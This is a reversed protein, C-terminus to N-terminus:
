VVIAAKQTWSWQWVAAVATLLTGSLAVVDSQSLQYVVKDAARVPVTSNAPLVGANFAVVYSTLQQQFIQDSYWTRGSWEVGADLKQDRQREIDAAQEEYTKYSQWSGSRWRWHGMGPPPRDAVAAASANPVVGLYAGDADVGYVADLTTGDHVVPQISGGLQTLPQM